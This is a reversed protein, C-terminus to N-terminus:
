GNFTPGKLQLDIENMELSQGCGHPGHQFGFPALQHEGVTENRMKVVNVFM